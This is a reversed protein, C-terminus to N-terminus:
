GGFIWDLIGPDSVLLRPVVSYSESVELVHFSKLFKFFVKIKLSFLFILTFIFVIKKVAAIM